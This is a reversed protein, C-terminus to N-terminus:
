DIRKSIFPKKGWRTKYAYFLVGCFYVWCCVVYGYIFPMGFIFPYVRDKVFLIGPFEVACFGMILLIWIIAQRKALKKQGVVKKM